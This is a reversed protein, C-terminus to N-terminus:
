QSIICISGCARLPGEAAGDIDNDFLLAVASQNGFHRIVASVV